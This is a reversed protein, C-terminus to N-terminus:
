GAMGSSRADELNPHITHPRVWEGQATRHDPEAMLFADFDENRNPIQRLLKTLSRYLLVGIVSGLILLLSIMILAKECM